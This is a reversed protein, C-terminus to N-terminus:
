AGQGRLRRWWATQSVITFVLAALIIASLPSTVFGLMFNSISDQSSIMEQRYSRDM